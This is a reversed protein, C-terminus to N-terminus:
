GFLAWFGGGNRSFAPLFVGWVGTLRERGCAPTVPSPPDSLPDARLQRLPEVRGRSRAMRFYIVGEALPIGRHLPHDREHPPAPGIYPAALRQSFNARDISPGSIHAPTRGLIHPVAPISKCPHPICYLPSAHLRGKQASSPPRM